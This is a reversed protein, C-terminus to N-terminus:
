ISAQTQQQAAREAAAWLTGGEKGAGPPSHYLVPTKGNFSEVLRGVQGIELVQFVPDTLFCSIREPKALNHGQM